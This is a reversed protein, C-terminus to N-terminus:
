ASIIQVEENCQAYQSSEQIHMNLPPSFMDLLIKPTELQVNLFM